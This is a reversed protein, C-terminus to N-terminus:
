SSVVVLYLFYHLQSKGGMPFEADFDEFTFNLFKSPDPLSTDMSLDIGFDDGSYDVHEEEEDHDSPQPSPPIIVLNKLVSTSLLGTTPSKAPVTSSTILIVPSEAAKGLGEAREERVPSSSPDAAVDSEPPLTSDTVQSVEM